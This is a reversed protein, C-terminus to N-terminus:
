RYETPLLTLPLQYKGWIHKLADFDVAGGVLLTMARERRKSGGATLYLGLLFEPTMVRVPVGEYDLIAANRVADAHLGEGAVLIQVPVGYILLHEDRYDFGKKRCWAYISELSVIKGEDVDMLVFVDVDYTRSVEAYFLAALAGGLAYSQILREQELENITAFVDRLRNM